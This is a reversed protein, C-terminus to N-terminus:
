RPAERLRVGVETNHPVDLELIGGPDATQEALEEDDVELLYNQRPKFGLVFVPETGEVAVKLKRANAGFLIMARGLDLPEAAAHPDLATAAGGQFM